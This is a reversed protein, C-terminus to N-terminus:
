VLVFLSPQCVVATSLVCLSAMDCNQIRVMHAADDRDLSIFIIEMDIDTGKKAESYFNMLEPTFKRCPGCWQASVYMLIHKGMLTSTPMGEFVGDGKSMVLEHGVLRKLWPEIDNAKTDTSESVQQVRERLAM